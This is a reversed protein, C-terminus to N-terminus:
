RGESPRTANRFQNAHWGMAKVTAQMLRALVPPSIVIEMEEKTRVDEFVIMVDSDPRSYAQVTIGPTNAFVQMITRRRDSSEIMRPRLPSRMEEPTEAALPADRPEQFRRAPMPPAGMVEDTDIRHRSHEQRPPFLPRTPDAAPAPRPTGSGKQVPIEPTEDAENTTDVEPRPDWEDFLESM